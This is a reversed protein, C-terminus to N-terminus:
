ESNFSTTYGTQCNQEALSLLKFNAYKYYIQSAIGNNSVRSVCPIQQSDNKQQKNLLQLEFM